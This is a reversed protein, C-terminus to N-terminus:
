SGRFPTPFAKETGTVSRAEWGYEISLETEAPMDKLAFFGIRWESGVQTSLDSYWTLTVTSIGARCGTLVVVSYVVHTM